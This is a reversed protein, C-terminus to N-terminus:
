KLFAQGHNHASQFMLLMKKRLGEYTSRKTDRLLVFLSAYLVSILKEKLGKDIYLGTFNFLYLGNTPRVASSGQPM